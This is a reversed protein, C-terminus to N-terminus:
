KLLSPIVQQLNKFNQVIKRLSQKLLQAVNKYKLQYM